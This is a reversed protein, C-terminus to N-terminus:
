QTVSKPGCCKKFKRGSGCPCPENRGVHMRDDRITGPSSAPLPEFGFPGDYLDAEDLEILNDDDTADWTDDDWSDDTQQRRSLWPRLEVVTDEILGLNSRLRGLTASKGERLVKEVYKTDFIPFDQDKNVLSLSELIEDSSEEPYLDLLANSAARAEESDSNKTAEHLLERLLAVTADRDRWGAGVMKVLGDAAASRVFENIHRNRILATLIEIQDVALAAFVSSLSETVVDGFLDFPGDEPLSVAEIIAPLAQTVRFETLLFMAILHGNRELTKPSDPALRAEDILAILGPFFPEGHRQITRITAEPFEGNPADLQKLISDVDVLISDNETAVEDSM